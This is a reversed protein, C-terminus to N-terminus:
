DKSKELIESNHQLVCQEYKQKELLLKNEYDQQFTKIKEEYLKNDKLLQKNLEEIKKM